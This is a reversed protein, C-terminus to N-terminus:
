ESSFKCLVPEVEFHRSSEIRLLSSHWLRFFASEMESM